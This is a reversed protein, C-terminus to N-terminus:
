LKKEMAVAIYEGNDIEVNTKNFNNKTWFVDAEENGKAFALKIYEFENEKLFLCLDGIIKKGIGKGQYSKNMMFLGIYAINDKPFDLILDLIAVLDNGDFFGVYFKDKYTKNPPLANLDNKISDKTVFPTCHEYYKPNSISLEYISPIDEDNLKRVTYTSSFYKEKM